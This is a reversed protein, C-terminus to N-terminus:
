YAGTADHSASRVRMCSTRPEFGAASGGVKPWNPAWFDMGMGRRFDFFPLPKGSSPSTPASPSHNRLAGRSGFFFGFRELKLYFKQPFNTYKKLPGLPALDTLPWRSFYINIKKKYKKPFFRPVEWHALCLSASDVPQCDLSYIPGSLAGCGALKTYFLQTM